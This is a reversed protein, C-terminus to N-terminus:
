SWFPLWPMTTGINNVLLRGVYSACVLAIVAFAARDYPNAFLSRRAKSNGTSLCREDPKLKSLLLPVSACFLPMFLLSIRAFSAISTSLLYAFALLLANWYHLSVGEPESERRALFMSLAVVAAYQALVILQEARISSMELYSGYGLLGAVRSALSLVPVMGVAIAVTGALAVKAFGKRGLPVRYLFYLPLFILASTHLFFAAACVALAWRAPRGKRAYSVHSSVACAAISSPALNLGTQFVALSLFLLAGMWPDPSERWLLLAAFGCFLASNAVTIAQPDQWLAYLAHNYLFYGLEMGQVYYPLLAGGGLFESLGHQGSWMFILQYNQTDAGVTSARFAAVAFLAAMCAAFAGARLAGRGRLDSERAALGVVLIVVLLGVYVTM